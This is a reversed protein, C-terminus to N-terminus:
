VKSVMVVQMVAAMVALLIRKRCSHGGTTDGPAAQAAM